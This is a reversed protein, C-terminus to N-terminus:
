RRAKRRNQRELKRKRKMEKVKKYELMIRFDESYSGKTYSM